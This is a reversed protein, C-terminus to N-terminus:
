DSLEGGHVTLAYLVLGDIVLAIISWLPYASLFGLNALASLVTLFVAVIRGWTKGNLVALGALLIFLGLILDIWGWATFNFTVLHTSTVVYYTPRFLAALGAIVQLGGMVLMMAGAFFVWGVWGSPENSNTNAM